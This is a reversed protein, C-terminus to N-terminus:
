FGASGLGSILNGFQYVSWSKEVWNYAFTYQGSSTNAV